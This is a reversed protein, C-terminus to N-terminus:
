LEKVAKLIEEFDHSCTAEIGFGLDAGYCNAWRRLDHRKGNKEFMCGWNNVLGYPKVNSVGDIKELIGKLEIEGNPTKM